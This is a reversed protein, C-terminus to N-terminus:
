QARRGWPWLKTTLSVLFRPDPKTALLGARMTPVALTMDLRFRNAFSARLGGGVSTLNQSGRFGKNWVWASDVFVFPQLALELKASPQIRDIRLEGTVGVGSDGILTGPDYGRGITYSGASYEEFSLLPEFGYQGRSSLTASIGSPFSYDFQGTARVVTATSDGDIRSPGVRGAPVPHSADFIDLGRRVELSGVYRWRPKTGSRVDTADADFRLYGVRLHDRTLPIGSFEVTQNVYDFGVAGRLNKAQSRIFPYSAEGNAFLTRALISGSAAGLDPKTWAYTFRGGLTLGQGGLRYDHAFQLISQEKFDFTNYWAVTTRDGLGTLGYVQARLQGGFRGTDRSGLNQINFDVEVPTRTVTVEGILEGAGTGAPTLSLRIDYGPLDRALLLYREADFRNFVEAESLRGLYAQLLGEARAGDGRVRVATIRAYLVEFKVIGNEIRQTPVQVAALYGKRRLITAAADRIECISAVPVEKGIYAAYAPRLEEPSLGKLNNFQAEAITVKYQAYAPDALLCPSREIDGEITVRSPAPPPPAPPQIEERTPSLPTSPIVPTQQAAAPTALIALGLLEAARWRRALLQTATRIPGEVVDL